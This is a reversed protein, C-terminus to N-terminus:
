RPKELGGSPRRRRASQKALCLMFRAMRQRSAIWGIEFCRRGFTLWAFAIARRFNRHAGNMTSVGARGIQMEAIASGHKGGSPIPQRLFNPRRRGRQREIQYRASAGRSRIDRTEQDSIECSADHESSATAPAVNLLRLIIVKSGGSGSSTSSSTVPM